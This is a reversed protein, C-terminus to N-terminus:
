AARASRAPGGGSSSSSSTRSGPILPTSSIRRSAARLWSGGVTMTEPSAEMVSVTSASRSPTWSKMSFGNLRSRRSCDIPLASSFAARL